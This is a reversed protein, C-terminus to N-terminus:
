LTCFVTAASCCSRKYSVPSLLDMIGLHCNFLQVCLISNLILIYCFFSIFFFGTRLLVTEPQGKYNTKVPQYLLM